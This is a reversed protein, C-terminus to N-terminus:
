GDASEDGAPVADASENRASEDGVSEAGAFEADSVVVGSARVVLPETTTNTSM